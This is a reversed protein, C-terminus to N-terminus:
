TNRRVSPSYPIDVFWKDLKPLRALQAEVVAMAETSFKVGTQYLTTVLEVVPHAGQWTM